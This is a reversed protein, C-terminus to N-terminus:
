NGKRYHRVSRGVRAAARCTALSEMAVEHTRVRRKFHARGIGVGSTELLFSVANSLGGINRWTDPQVGGMSVTKDDPGALAKGSKLMAPPWVAGAAAFTLLPISRDETSTGIIPIAFGNTRKQPDDVYPILEAHSTFDVRGSRFGPTDYNIAPDPFHAAVAPADHAVRAPDFRATAAGVM